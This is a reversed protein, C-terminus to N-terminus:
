VIRLEIGDNPSPRRHSAHLEQLSKWTLYSAMETVLNRLAEEEDLGDMLFQPFEKLEATFGDEQKRKLMVTLTM